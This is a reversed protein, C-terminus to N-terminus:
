HQPVANCPHTQHSVGTKWDNLEYVSQLIAIEAWLSCSDLSRHIIDIIEREELSIKIMGSGADLQSKGQLNTCSGEQWCCATLECYCENFIQWWTAKKIGKCIGKVHDMCNWPCVLTTSCNASSDPNPYMSHLSLLSCGRSNGPSSICKM